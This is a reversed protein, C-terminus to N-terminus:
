GAALMKTLGDYCTRQSDGTVKFGVTADANTAVVDGASMYTDVESAGTLLLVECETGDEVTAIYWGDGEDVLGYQKAVDAADVLSAAPDAVESEMVDSEVAPSPSSASDDDPESGCATLVALALLLPICMKSM